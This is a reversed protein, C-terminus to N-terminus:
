CRQLAPVEQERAGKVAVSGAKMGFRMALRALCYEPEPFIVGAVAAIDLGLNFLNFGLEALEWCECRFAGDLFKEM